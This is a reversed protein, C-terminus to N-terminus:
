HKLLTIDIPSIPRGEPFNASVKPSIPRGITKSSNNTNTNQKNQKTKQPNKIVNKQKNKEGIKNINSCLFVIIIIIISVKPM